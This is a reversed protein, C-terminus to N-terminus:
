FHYSPLVVMNYLSVHHFPITWWFLLFMDSIEVSQALACPAPTSPIDLPPEAAFPASTNLANLTCTSWPSANSADYPLPTIWYPSDPVTIPDNSTGSEVVVELGRPLMVHGTGM